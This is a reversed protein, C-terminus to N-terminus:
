LRILRPAELGCIQKLVETFFPINLQDNITASHVFNPTANVEIFQVNGDNQLLFDIGLLMYRNQSSAAQAEQLLPKLSVTASQITSWHNEFDSLSSLLRMEVASDPKEYGRHDVHVGYDISAPDFLVGHLLVFGEDFLWLQQNWVLVYIRATFKRDEILALNQVGQQLINEKPLKYEDLKASSLCEIGRGGSLHVPKSFWILCEDKFRLADDISFCSRPFLTELDREIVRRAVWGKNELQNIVDKKVLQIDDCKADPNVGYFESWYSFRWLKNLPLLPEVSEVAKAFLRSARNTFLQLRPKDVMSGVQNM